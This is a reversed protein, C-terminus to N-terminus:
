QAQREAADVLNAVAEEITKEYGEDSLELWVVRCKRSNFHESDRKVLAEFVDREKKSLKETRRTFPNLREGLAFILFDPHCDYQFKHFVQKNRYVFFPSGLVMIRDLAKKVSKEYAGYRVESLIVIFDSQSMRATLEAGKDKRFCLGPTKNGCVGCSICQGIDDKAMSFAKHPIKLKKLQDGCMKSAEHLTDESSLGDIVVTQNNM